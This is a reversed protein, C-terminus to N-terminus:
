QEDFEKVGTKFFYFVANEEDETANFFTFIFMREGSILYYQDVDDTGSLMHLRLINEVSRFSYSGCDAEIFRIGSGLTNKLSQKIDDIDDLMASNSVYENAGFTLVVGSKAGEGLAIFMPAKRELLTEYLEDADVGSGSLIARADIINQETSGRGIAAWYVPVVVYFEEYPDIYGIGATENEEGNEEDAEEENEEPEEEALVSLFSGAQMYGFCLILALLLALIKKM